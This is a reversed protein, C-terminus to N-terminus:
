QAREPTGWKTVLSTARSGRGYGEAREWDSPSLSFQNRPKEKKLGIRLAEAWPEGMVTPEGVPPHNAWLPM